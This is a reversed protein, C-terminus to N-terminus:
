GQVTPAQYIYLQNTQQHSSCNTSQFSQQDVSGVSCQSTQSNFTIADFGNSLAFSQCSKLTSSTTQDVQGGLIPDLPSTMNPRSCGAKHWQPGTHSRQIQHVHHHYGIVVLLVILLCAVILWQGYVNM